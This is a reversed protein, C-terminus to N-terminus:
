QNGCAAAADSAASTNVGDVKFDKCASGASLAYGPNWTQPVLSIRAQVRKTVDQARANADIIAQTGTLNLAAGTATDNATVVVNALGGYAMISLWSGSTDYDFSIECVGSVCKTSVVEGDTASGASDSAPIFYMRRLDTLDSKAVTVRMIPINANDITPLTTPSGSYATTAGVTNSKWSITIKSTAATTKLRSIYPDAGLADKVISEGTTKWNICTVEASANFNTNKLSLTTGCSGTPSDAPISGKAYENILEAGKRNIASEAAYQAQFSLTKDLVQQQDTRVLTAFGVALLSLIIVFVMAFLISSMGSQNIKKM